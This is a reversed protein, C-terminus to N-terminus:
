CLWVAQFSLVLLRLHLLVRGGAHLPIVDHNMGSAIGGAAAIACCLQIQRQVAGTAAASPVGQVEEISSPCLSLRTGGTTHCHMSLPTRCQVAYRYVKSTRLGPSIPHQRMSGHLLMACWKVM